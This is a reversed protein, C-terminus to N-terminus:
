AAAKKDAALRNVSASINEGLGAVFDIGNAIGGVVVGTAIQGALPSSATPFMNAAPFVAVVAVAGLVFSTVLLLLTRWSEWREDEGVPLGAKALEVLRNIVVGIFILEMSLEM